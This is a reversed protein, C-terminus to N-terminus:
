NMKVENKTTRLGVIEYRYTSYIVYDTRMNQHLTIM